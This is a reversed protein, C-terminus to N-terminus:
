HRRLDDWMRRLSARRDGALDVWSVPDGDAGAAAVRIGWLPAFDAVELSYRMDALIEPRAPDRAAFGGTFREFRAEVDAIRAARADVGPPPGGDPLFLPVSTGAEWRPAGSFPIRGGGAHIRGDAVYLGRWVVLNMPTPLARAREVVHGRSAALRHVEQMALGHQRAGIGLYAACLTLAAVAAARRLTWATLLAGALLLFTFIPDVIAIVDWAARAGSFPLLLSTGYSTCADLLGHTTYALTAALLTMRWRARLSAAAVLFPLAALLGGVPSFLLAHTAHRHVEWPVAPDSVLRMLVDADALTGAAAGLLLAKRGETAPLTSQAVAAGLLAHTLPDM